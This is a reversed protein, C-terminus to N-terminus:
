PEFYAFMVLGDDLIGVIGGAEEGESYFYQGNDTNDLSLGSTELMERIRTVANENGPFYNVAFVFVGDDDLGYVLFSASVENVYLYNKTKGINENIYNTMKKMPVSIESPMSSFSASTYGSSQLLETIDDNEYFEELVAHAIFVQAQCTTLALYAIISLLFKKM